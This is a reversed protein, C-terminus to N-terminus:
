SRNRAHIPHTGLASALHPDCRLRAVSRGYTPGISGRPMGLAVSVEDYSSAPATLLFRMLTRQRAPLAALARQLADRREAASAADEISSPDAEDANPPEDVPVERRSAALV